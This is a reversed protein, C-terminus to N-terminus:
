RRACVRSAWPSARTVLPLHGAHLPEVVVVAEVERHEEREARGVAAQGVDALDEGGDFADGLAVALRPDALPGGGGVAQPGRGLGALLRAVGGAGAGGVQPGREVVVVGRR